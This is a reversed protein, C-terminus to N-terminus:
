GSSWRESAAVPNNRRPRNSAKLRASARSLVAAAAGVAETQLVGADVEVRHNTARSRFLDFAGGDAGGKPDNAAYVLRKFARRSMAGACM